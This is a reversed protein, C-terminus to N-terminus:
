DALSHTQRGRIIEVAKAFQSSPVPPSIFPMQFVESINKTDKYHGDVTSNLPCNNLPCQPAGENDGGRGTRHGCIQRAGTCNQM